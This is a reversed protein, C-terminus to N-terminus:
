KPMYADRISKFESTSKWQPWTNEMSIRKGVNFLLKLDDVSGDSKWRTSDYADSPKHYYKAVYESQVQKGYEAG